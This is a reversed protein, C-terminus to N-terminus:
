GAKMCDCAKAHDERWLDLRPYPREPMERFLRVPLSTSALPLLSGQLFHLVDSNGVLQVTQWREWPDLLYFGYDMVVELSLYSESFRKCSCGNLQTCACYISRRFHQLEVMLRYIGLDDHRPQDLQTRERGSTM